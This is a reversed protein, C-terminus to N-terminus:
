RKTGILTRRCQKAKIQPFLDGGHDAESTVRPTPPQSSSSAECAGSASCPESADDSHSTRTRWGTTRGAGTVQRDEAGIEKLAAGYFKLGDTVLEEAPGHRKMLTRLFRPAAKKDRTKSVFAELVEGEHGVARWLSHQVGNIKM